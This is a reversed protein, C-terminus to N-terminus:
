QFYKQFISSDIGIDGILNGNYYVKNNGNIRLRHSTLYTEPQEQGNGFAYFYKFRFARKLMKNKNNNLGINTKNLRKNKNNLGGNKKSQLEKVAQELKSLRSEIRSEINRSRYIM